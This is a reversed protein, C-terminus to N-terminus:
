ESSTEITWKTPIGTGGSVDWQAAANKIFTGTAAVNRVWNNTYTSSPTTTFMAKIYNLNSCGSFMEGYCGDVLTEAPLVPADTIKTTAFMGYYCNKALTTAPLTLRITDLSTCISFMRQCCGEDLVTPAM